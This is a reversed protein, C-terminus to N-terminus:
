RVSGSRFLQPYHDRLWRVSTEVCEMAPNICIDQEVILWEVGTEAATEIISPLDVIGRGLELTNMGDNESYTFDKLHILPTRGAFRGLYEAPDRKVYRVWATDQELKMLDSPLLDCLADFVEQGNYQNEFEFQHNHYAFQIGRALASKAIRDFFTFHRDWDKRDDVPINPCVLYSGEINCIYDMEKELNDVLLPYRVHSGIATLDLEKLMYNMEDAPIDSYGAFEVGTFGLEAVKRLVGAMDKATEERLTFLQIGVKPGIM